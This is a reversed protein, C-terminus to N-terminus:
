LYSYLRGKEDKTNPFSPPLNTLFALRSERTVIHENIPSTMIDYFWLSFIEKRCKGRARAM